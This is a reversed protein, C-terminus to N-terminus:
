GGTYKKNYCNIKSIDVVNRMVAIKVLQAGMKIDASGSAPWRHVLEQNSHDAFQIVEMRDFLGM